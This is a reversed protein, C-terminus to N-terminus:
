GSEAYWTQQVTRRMALRQRTQAVIGIVALVVLTLYWGWGAHVAQSFDGRTFDASNITGVLLMLGAVVSVAGALASVVALVIMPLNAVVAVLGLAAGVVIGVLVAVWNWSIGLAVVLGSGIAFGFAAMAIVVAVAFYLYALLAFVLACVFGSVWGLVTGLFHEDALEAFLGAGFAFGAFFGWIPLILRLVLQGAFLMFGGAVIAFLGLVIDAM